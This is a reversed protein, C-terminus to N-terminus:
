TIFRDASASRELYPAARYREEGFFRHMAVVIAHVYRVGIREGWEFPGFPYNTGLRMAADIDSRSAITEDMAFCAENVLMGIIRPLVMGPTDRVLATEKGLSRLFAKTREVTDGATRESTALEVLTGGLLSPVAAIGVLREPHRIWAAQDRVPVTVSSSLIPTAPGLTQDLQSLNSKKVSADLLSLELAVDIDTGPDSRVAIGKTACLGAYEQILQREGVIIVRWYM